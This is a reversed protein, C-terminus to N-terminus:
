AKVESELDSIRHNAVAIKEELVPMRQAFENHRRVEDTLNELKTSMVAQRQEIRADSLQTQRELEKLMAKNNVVAIVVEAAVALVGTVLAALVAESM